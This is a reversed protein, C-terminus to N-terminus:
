GSSKLTRIVEGQSRILSNVDTNTAMSNPCFLKNRRTLLLSLKYCNRVSLCSFMLQYTDIFYLILVLLLQTFTVHCELPLPLRTPTDYIPSNVSLINVVRNLVVPALGYLPSFHKPYNLTLFLTLIQYNEPLNTTEIIEDKSGEVGKM